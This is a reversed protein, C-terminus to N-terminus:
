QQFAISSVAKLWEIEPLVSSAINVHGQEDITFVTNSAIESLRKRVIALTKLDNRYGQIVVYADAKGAVKAALDAMLVGKRTGGANIESVPLARFEAVSPNFNKEGAVVTLAIAKDSAPTPTAVPKEPTSTPTPQEGGAPRPSAAAPSTEGAPLPAGDDDDGCALLLLGSLALAPLLLRLM